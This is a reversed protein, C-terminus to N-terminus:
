SAKPDSERAMRIARAVSSHSVSVLKVIEEYSMGSEVARALEQSWEQRTANVLEEHKAIEQDYTERARILREPVAEDYKPRHRFAM